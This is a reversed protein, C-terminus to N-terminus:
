NNFYIKGNAKKYWDPINLDRGILCCSLKLLNKNENLTLQKRVSNEFTEKTKLISESFFKYNYIEQPKNKFTYIIQLKM